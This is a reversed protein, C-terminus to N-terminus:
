MPHKRKKMLLPKVEKGILSHLSNDMLFTPFYLNETNCVCVNSTNNEEESLITESTQNHTLSTDM